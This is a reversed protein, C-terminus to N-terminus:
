RVYSGANIDITCGTAHDMYGSALFVVTPAVDKPETLEKLALDDMVIGEGFQEIFQRAMGTKVFGPAVVFSKINYEGYARAISRSMAVMGGKSAAYALYEPEDGRFAARSAINIIRGGNVEMFHTIAARCLIGSATLNVMMTTNWDEIWREGSTDVLPSNIIIGANNVLVHITDFADLVDLFLRSCEEPVSLNAQFAQSGNDFERALAEAKDLNSNCHIAVRAGSGALAKAIAEGIGSSAGTVLINKGTFDIKM